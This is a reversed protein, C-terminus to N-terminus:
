FQFTLNTGLQFSIYDDQAVYKNWLRSFAGNITMRLNKALEYDASTNFTATTSNNAATVPSSRFDISLTNTWIIRNSFLIPKSMFPLLLGHPLSLDARVLLSPSFDIDDQSLLGGGQSATDVTYLVKPTFRFKRIDFTTQVTADEHYTSATLQNLQLNNTESYRRNFSVTTDFKKMIITRFDTGFSDDTGLTQGITETRHAAYKINVQANSIWKDLWFLKEIQGITAVIDPITTTITKSETGTVDSRQTSLVLNNNFSLTKLVAWRGTLLYAEFPSWRQTSNYTDRLTLNTEQAAPSSSHIPTRVSFLFRTDVASEVGTWADGDQLQYSNALNFSHFLKTKPFIDVINLPLSFTGNASRNITKLDGANFVYTSGSVVYTSVNLINNEVNNVTYNIAPNLWKNIKFNSSFGITDNMQTPYESLVDVGSTMDDRHERTQTMSFNPNFTSGKWPVFALRTGFSNTVDNTNFNGPTLREQLSSYDSSFTAYSYNLDINRPVYSVTFPAAYSLASNYTNRDDVRTLLDYETYAKIYGLTLHPFAGYALNGTATSNWNVVRGQQLLNVVNSLNGTASTNPTNTMTRDLTFNIPFYRFHTFNLYATDQQNDQNAIVTTPTVFNHDMYRRKFGMTGWQPLDFDAQLKYANGVRIIANSVFIEDLWVTGQTPTSPGRSYIGTVLEAIQQLNPAGTSVIVTGPTGKSLVWTNPIQSGTTDVQTATFERWGVFNIPIDMEFFNQDSGARLFFIKDGTTNVNNPDANGYLLFNFSKHSSVDIPKAFIRETYVTTGQTLNSWTMQLSQESINQTGSQQQLNSISGYLDNFVAQADGGANFIPLYNPNSINNIANVTLNENAVPGSGYQLDGAAGPLWTNGIVAVQAFRLTGTAAGGPAQRISIRIEKIATWNALTASSINLPIQFTHWMPGGFDVVTRTSSTTSDYLQNNNTGPAANYGYDGGMGDDGDLIGNGNLDETDIVGNNAGFRASNLGTPAYLWGIDEGPELIGNCLLDETKPAHYITQGNACNLTIGGTGDADENIGGLRFDIQNMSMDGQMTVQLTSMRSFDLGTPNFVYVISVETSASVSFNYNFDLVQTNDTPKAQANPFVQLTPINENAWSLATADSPGSTPNSAIKWPYALLNAANTQLIGEMNDILAYGNLNPDLRSQAVEGQFSGKLKGILSVDKWHGNLDYVMLSRSIDTIQPTSSAKTGSEYLLTTGIGLNKNFDYGIRGGLISDSTLGLPNGVEYSIDVVSNTQIRQPNFFTIFGSPYDIFYDVNRVLRVGDVMVIDSQLVLNPELLFTKLQFHYEVHILRESIPTPSYINPDPVSPSSNSVSFPATLQFLGNTFNVTMTQPYVQQPNLTSGVENRTGPDIVKLIFNGHGNDPTIQVQGISYITKLERDWSVEMAATASSQSIPIDANTKLLKFLGTGGTYTLTTENIIHHGTADVYDAAVVFQPLLATKFTLIGKIYDITYDQGPVLPLFTGTFSSSAVALDDATITIATPPNQALANQQALYIRESGAVLPLRATNNFSLDYYQRRVYGDDPIDTAVFQTNGVFQKTKTTGKTRSGIITGSFGKYKLDGRIGFVQKNYSVFETAPLSLDIDGFSVNQIVENPDGTYVVSIDQKDPKTDDYDVNVAVKPGIKGQMRLQMQQVIGIQNAVQPQGTTIQQSLFRKESYNFGVIKRGSVSLNTGYSAMEIEPAIPNPPAGSIASTPTPFATPLEFEESPVIGAETDSRMRGWRESGVAFTKLGKEFDEFAPSPAASEAGISPGFIHAPDPRDLLLFPGPAPILAAASPTESSVLVTVPQGPVAPLVEGETPAAVPESPPPQGEPAQTEQQAFDPDYPFSFQAHASAAPLTSLLLFLALTRPM